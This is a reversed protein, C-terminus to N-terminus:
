PDDDEARVLCARAAHVACYPQGAATPAGCKDADTFPREGYLWQCSRPRPGVDASWRRAFLYPLPEPWRSEPGDAAARRRHRQRAAHEMLAELRTQAAFLTELDAALDDNM